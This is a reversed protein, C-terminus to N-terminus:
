PWSVRDLGVKVARLHLKLAKYGRYPNGEECADTLM